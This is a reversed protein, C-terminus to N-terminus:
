TMVASVLLQRFETLSRGDQPDSGVGQGGNDDKFSNPNPPETKVERIIDRIEDADLEDEGEDQVSCYRAISREFQKKRTTDKLLMIRIDDIRKVVEPDRTDEQLFLRTAAGGGGQSQDGPSSPM